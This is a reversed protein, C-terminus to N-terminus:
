RIRRRFDDTWLAADPEYVTVIVCRGTEKELAVVVHLPRNEVTWLILRSPYPSDDPYAEVVEGHEVAERVDSDDVGRDFMREIAHRSFKLDYCKWRDEGNM